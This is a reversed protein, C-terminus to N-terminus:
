KFVSEAPVAWARILAATQMLIVLAAAAQEVAVAAIVMAGPATRRVTVSGTRAIPRAIGRVLELLRALTVRRTAVAPAAIVQVPSVRRVLKAAMQAVHLRAPVATTQVIRGAITKERRQEATVPAAFIAPHPMEEVAFVRRSVVPAWGATFTEPMGDGLCM